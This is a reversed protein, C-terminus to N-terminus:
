KSLQLPILEETMLAREKVMGIVTNVDLGNLKYIPDLTITKTYGSFETPEVRHQVIEAALVTPAITSLMGVRDGATVFPEFEDLM